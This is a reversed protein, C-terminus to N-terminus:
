HPLVGHLSVGFTDRNADVPVTDNAKIREAIKKNVEDLKERLVRVEDEKRSFHKLYNARNPVMNEDHHDAIHRDMITRIEMRVLIIEDRYLRKMAEAQEQFLKIIEAINDM